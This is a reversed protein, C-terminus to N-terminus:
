SLRSYDATHYVKEEKTENAANISNSLPLWLNKKKPKIPLM